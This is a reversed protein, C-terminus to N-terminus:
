VIFQASRQLKQYLTGCQTSAPQTVHLAIKNAM